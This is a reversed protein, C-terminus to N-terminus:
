EKNSSGRIETCQNFSNTYTLLICLMSFILDLFYKGCTAASSSWAATDLCVLVENGNLSSGLNCTYRAVTTLGNTTINVNGRAPEYLAPCSVLCVLGYLNTKSSKTM